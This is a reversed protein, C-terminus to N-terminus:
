LVLYSMPLVFVELFFHHSFLIIGEQRFLQSSVSSFSWIQSPFSHWLHPSRSKMYLHSVFTFINSEHSHVSHFKLPYCAHILYCLSHMYFLFNRLLIQAYSPIYYSYNLFSVEISEYYKSIQCSTAVKRNLPRIM